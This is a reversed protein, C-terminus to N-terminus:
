TLVDTDPVVESRDNYCLFYLNLLVCSGMIIDTFFNPGNTNLSCASSTNSNEKLSFYSVPSVHVLKSAKQIM